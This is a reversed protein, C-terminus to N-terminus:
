NHFDFFHCWLSIRFGMYVAFAETLFDVYTSPNTETSIISIGFHEKYKIM